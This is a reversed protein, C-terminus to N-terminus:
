SSVQLPKKRNQEALREFAEFVIDDQDEQMFSNWPSYKSFRRRLEVAYLEVIKNWADERNEELALCFLKLCPSTDSSGTKRYTDTEQQCHKALENVDQQNM